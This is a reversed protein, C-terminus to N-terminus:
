AHPEGDDNSRPITAEVFWGKPRVPGFNLTGGLTRLRERLGILGHDSGLDTVTGGRSVGGKDEVRVKTEEPGATFTVDVRAGSGAYRLANTLGEQVTRYIALESSQNQRSMNGTRTLHVDLGATQFGAILDPLDTIGPLPAMEAREAEPERLVGILRRMDALAARGTEASQEMARAAEDPQIQAARAAGESLVVMVSVSHAIIDHMERAIRTREEAVALRAQQDRERALQHARDIIAQTYRSRNGVNIGLMVPILMLMALTVVAAIAGGDVAEDPNLYLGILSTPVMSGVALGYGIWGLRTTGYVPVSYLLFAVALTLAASPPVDGPTVISAILVTCLSALPHQRRMRLAAVTAAAVLAVVIVQPFHVYSPAVLRTAADDTGKVISTAVGLFVAILLFLVVIAWDTADPHERLARRIRGPPNPLDIAEQEPESMPYEASTGHLDQVAGDDWM